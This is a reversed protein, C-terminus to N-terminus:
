GNHNQWQTFYRPETSISCRTAKCYKYINSDKILTELAEELTRAIAYIDIKGGVDEVVMGKWVFLQLPLKIFEQLDSLRKLKEFTVCPVIEKFKAWYKDPLVKRKGREVEGLYVHSVGIHSAASRQSIKDHIRTERIYSGFTESNVSGDLFAEVFKNAEGGPFKNIKFTTTKQQIPSEHITEPIHTVFVGLEGDAPYTKNPYFTMNINCQCPTSDCSDCYSPPYTM